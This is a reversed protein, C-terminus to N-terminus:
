SGPTNNANAQDARMEDMQSGIRSRVAEILRSMAPGLSEAIRRALENENIEIRNRIDMQLQPIAARTQALNPGSGVFFDEEEFGPGLTAARIGGREEQMRRIRNGLLPMALSIAEDSLGEISGRQNIFDAISRAEQFRGENMSGIRTQGGSLRQERQRLIELETRLLNIRAQGAQADARISQEQLQRERTLERELQLRAHTLDRQASADALGAEHRGAQNRVGTRNEESELALRRSQTQRARQEAAAVAARHEAVRGGQMVYAMNAVGAEHEARAVGTRAEYRQEYEGAERRGSARSRDFQAGEHEPLSLPMAARAYIPVSERDIEGIRDSVEMELRQQLNSRANRQNAQHIRDATGDIADRLAKFAGYLPIVSEGFKDMKQANTMSSNGFIEFASAAKKIGADFALVAAGAVPSAMSALGSFQHTPDQSMLGMSGMLFDGRGRWRGGNDGPMRLDATGFAFPNSPSGSPPPGGPPPPPPPPPGGGWGAAFIPGTPPWPPQSSPASQIPRAVPSPSSVPVNPAQAIPPSTPTAVTHAAPLPASPISRNWVKNTQDKVWQMEREFFKKKDAEWQELLRAFEEDTAKNEGPRIAM